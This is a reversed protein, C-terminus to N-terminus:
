LLCSSESQDRCIHYFYSSSLIILLQRPQSGGFKGNLANQYSKGKNIQSVEICGDEMMKIVTGESTMIRSTEKLAYKRRVAECDQEGKTKYPYSQKILLRRDDEAIPKM